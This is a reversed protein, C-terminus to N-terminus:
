KPFSQAIGKGMKACSNGAAFAHKKHRALTGCKYFRGLQKDDVEVFDHRLRSKMVRDVLGSFVDTRHDM